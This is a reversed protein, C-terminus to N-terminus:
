GRAASGPFAPLSWGWILAGARLAFGCPAAILAAPWAELGAARAVVFITAALLAASVTIERRLLISPQGALLDRVVGGFCATLAGMVICILPAVEFAEAKAAGLVGYAALGVADLWLLARFRWTRAGALWVAVSAALCVAIYRWDQVWFVPAGILLDRLTGGGVGTIAGFFAFTVLDHKERAAALAGTAAFVAVGAFDLAGLVSEPTALGPDVIPTM